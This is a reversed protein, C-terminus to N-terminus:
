KTAERMAIPLLNWSESSTIPAVSIAAPEDRGSTNEESTARHSGVVSLVSPMAVTQPEETYLMRMMM